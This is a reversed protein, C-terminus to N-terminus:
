TLTCLSFLSYIERDVSPMLEDIGETNGAPGSRAPPLPEGRQGDM